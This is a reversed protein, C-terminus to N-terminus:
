IYMIVDAIFSIFDVGSVNKKIWLAYSQLRSNLNSQCLNDEQIKHIL